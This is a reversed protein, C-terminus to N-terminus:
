RNRSLQGLQILLETFEVANAMNPNVLRLRRLVEDRNAPLKGDFVLIILGRVAEREVASNQLALDKLASRILEDRTVRAVARVFDAM